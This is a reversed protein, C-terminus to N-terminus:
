AAVGDRAMLQGRAAPLYKRPKNTIAKCTADSLDNQEHLKQVVVV